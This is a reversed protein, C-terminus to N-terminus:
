RAGGAPLTPMTSFDKPLEGTLSKLFAVIGDVDEDALTRGLQVRAMVRVADPLTAVSGDHFYPPTMAVNRLGPVKFVYLDADDKTVDFRGKDIDKSGTALWYDMQAGFKQFIAGGVGAGNHCAACGVDVFTRLGLRAQSTLALINGDLYADFPGPTALTREYAGIALSLNTPTIPDDEDPFARRFMALYGGISKIQAIWAVHDTHGTSLAGIAATIAQDEVDKRDGRWNAAFDGAINLASPANRAHRRGRVGISKTLADSGYLAPNHCSSCSVNQDVSWRPDFFLMKGLVVREPALPRESDAFDHPLKKFLSRAEQLLARDLDQAMLSASTLVAIACAAVVGPMWFQM